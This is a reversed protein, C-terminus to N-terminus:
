RRYGMWNGYSCDDCIREHAHYTHPQPLVNRDVLRCAEKAAKIRESETRTPHTMWVLLDKLRQADKPTM